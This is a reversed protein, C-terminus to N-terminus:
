RCVDVLMADIDRHFLFRVLSALLDRFASSVCQSASLTSCSLGGNDQTM